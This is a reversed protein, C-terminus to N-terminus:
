AIKRYYPKQKLVLGIHLRLVVITCKWGGSQTRMPEQYQLTHNIYFEKWARSRQDISRMVAMQRHHHSVRKKSQVGKIQAELIPLTGTTSSRTSCLALMSAFLLSPLSIKLNWQWYRENRADTTWLQLWFGNLIDVLKAITNPAMTKLWTRPNDNKTMNKNQM